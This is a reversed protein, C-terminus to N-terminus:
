PVSTCACLRRVSRRPVPAGGGGTRRATAAGALGGMRLSALSRPTSRAPTTGVPREPSIVRSSTIRALWCALTNWLMSVGSHGSSRSSRMGTFPTRLAIAVAITVLAKVAGCTLTNTSTSAVRVISNTRRSFFDGSKAPTRIEGSSTM